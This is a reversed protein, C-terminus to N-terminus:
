VETWGEPGSTWLLVAVGKRFLQASTPADVPPAHLLPAVADDDAIEYAGLLRRGRYFVLVDHVETLVLYDDLAVDRDQQAHVRAHDDLDDRALREEAELARALLATARAADEASLGTM